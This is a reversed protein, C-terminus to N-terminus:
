QPKSALYVAGDATRAMKRQKKIEYMKDDAEQIINFLTKTGDVKEIINGVSASLRYPKNIISNMTELKSYFRRILADGDDQTVGVSFM